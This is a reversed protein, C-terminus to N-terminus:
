LSSVARSYARAFEDAARSSPTGNAPVDPGAINGYDVLRTEAAIRDAGARTYLPIRHHGGSGSADREQAVRRGEDQECNHDCVCELVATCIEPSVNEPAALKESM